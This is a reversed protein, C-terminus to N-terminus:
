DEFAADTELRVVVILLLGCREGAAVREAGLAHTFQGLVAHDLAWVVLTIMLDAGVIQGDIVLHQSAQRHGRRGVRGQVGRGHGLGLDM